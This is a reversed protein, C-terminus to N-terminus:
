TEVENPNVRPVRANEPWYDSWEMEYIAFASPIANACSSILICTRAAAEGINAASVPINPLQNPPLELPAVAPAPAAAVALAFPLTNALPATTCAKALPPANVLEIADVGDMAGM